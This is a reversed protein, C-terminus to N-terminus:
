VAKIYQSGVWIIINQVFFNLHLRSSTFKIFIKIGNKQLLFWWQDTSQSRGMAETQTESNVKRLFYVPEYSKNLKKMFSDTLSNKKLRMREDGNSSMSSSSSLSKPRRLELSKTERPIMYRPKPGLKPLIIQENIGNQKNRYFTIWLFNIKKYVYIWTALLCYLIWSFNNFNHLSVCLLRTVQPLGGRCKVM